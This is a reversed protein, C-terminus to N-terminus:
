PGSARALFKALVPQVLQHVQRRTTQTARRWLHYGSFKTGVRGRELWPGYIIGRDHVQAEHGKREVTIQTEYYPTPNKFSGDANAHVESSAQASVQAVCEDVFEDIMGAMRGDFLPGNLEVRINRAM